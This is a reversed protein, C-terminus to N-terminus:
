LLAWYILMTFVRGTDLPAWLVHRIFGLWHPMNAMWAIHYAVIARGRDSERCALLLWCSIEPIAVTIELRSVHEWFPFLISHLDFIM